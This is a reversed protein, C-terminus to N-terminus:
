APTSSPHHALLNGIYDVADPNLSDKMVDFWLRGILNHEYAGRAFRDFMVREGHPLDNVYTIVQVRSQWWSFQEWHLATAAERSIGREMMAAVSREPNAGLANAAELTFRALREDTARTM